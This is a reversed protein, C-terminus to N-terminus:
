LISTTPDKFVVTIVSERRMGGNPDFARMSDDKFCDKSDIVFTCEDTAIVDCFIEQIQKM